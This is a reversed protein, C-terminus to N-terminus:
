TRITVDNISSNRVTSMKSSGEGSDGERPLLQLHEPNPSRPVYRHKESMSTRVPIFRSNDAKSMSARTPTVRRLIDVNSSPRRYYYFPQHLNETSSQPLYRLNEATSSRYRLSEPKGFNESALEAGNWKYTQLCINMTWVDTNGFSRDRSWKHNEEWRYKKLDFTSIFFIIWVIM